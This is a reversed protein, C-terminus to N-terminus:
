DSREFLYDLTFEQGTIKSLQIKINDMENLTFETKKKLKNDFSQKSIGINAALEAKILNARVLEAELNPYFIEKAM